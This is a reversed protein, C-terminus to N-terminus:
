IRVSTQQRKLPWAIPCLEHKQYSTKPIGWPMNIKAGSGTYLQHREAVAVVMQIDHVKCLMIVHIFFRGKEDRLPDM